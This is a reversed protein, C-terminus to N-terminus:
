SQSWVKKLLVKSWPCQENCFPKTNFCQLRRVAREAGLLSKQAEKVHIVTHGFSTKVVNMFSWFSFTTIFRGVIYKMASHQVINCRMRNAFIKHHYIETLVTSFGYISIKSSSNPVYNISFNLPQM